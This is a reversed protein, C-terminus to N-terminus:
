FPWAAGAKAWFLYTGALYLLIQLWILLWEVERVRRERDRIGPESAPAPESHLGGARAIGSPRFSPLNSTSTAADHLISTNM